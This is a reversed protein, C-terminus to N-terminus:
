FVFKLCDRTQFDFIRSIEIAFDFFFEVCLQSSSIQYYASFHASGDGVVIVIWNNNRCLSCSKKALTTRTTTTTEVTEITQVRDAQDITANRGFIIFLPLVSLTSWFNFILDIESNRSWCRGM